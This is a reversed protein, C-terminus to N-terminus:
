LPRGAWALTFRRHMPTIHANGRRPPAGDRKKSGVPDGTAEAASSSPARRAKARATELRATDRLGREAYARGAPPTGERPLLLFKIAVQRQSEGFRRRFHRLASGRATVVDGREFLVALHLDAAV